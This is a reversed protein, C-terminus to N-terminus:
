VRPDESLKLWGARGRAALRRGLPHGRPRSRDQSRFTSLQPGGSTANPEGSGPVARMREVVLLTPEIVPHLEVGSIGSEADDSADGSLRRERQFNLGSEVVASLAANPAILLLAPGM